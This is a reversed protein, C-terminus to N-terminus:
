KLCSIDFDKFDTELDTFGESIRKPTTKQIKFVGYKEDIYETKATKYKEKFGKCVRWVDGCWENQIRPTIQHGESPPNCDHLLIVDGKKAKNYAAILETEVVSATHDGDIFAVHPQETLIEQLTKM